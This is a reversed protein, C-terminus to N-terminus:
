AVPPRECSRVDFATTATSFGKLELGPVEEAVVAADVSAMVRQSILVQDAKAASSLRSALIV